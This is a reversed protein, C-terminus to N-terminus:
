FPPLDVSMAALGDHDSDSYGAVSRKRHNFVTLFPQMPSFFVLCDFAMEWAGLPTVTFIPIRAASAVTNTPTRVAM